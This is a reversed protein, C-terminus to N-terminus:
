HIQYTPTRYLASTNAGGLIEELVSNDLYTCVRRVTDLWAIKTDYKTKLKTRESQQFLWKDQAMILPKVTRYTHEILANAIDQDAKSIASVSGHEIKNRTEWLLLSLSWMQRILRTTWTVEDIINNRNQLLKKNLLGWQVSIRGLLVHEWGINSQRDFAEQFEHPFDDETPGYQPFEENVFSQIGIWLHTLIRGDTHRRMNKKLSRWGRRWAKKVHIAKCQMYHHQTEKATCSSCQGTTFQRNVPRLQHSVDRKAFMYKKRANVCQWGHILKLINVLPLPRTYKIAREHAEWCIDDFITVDWEYKEMLFQKLTENDVAEHVVKKLANHVLEDEVMVSAITGPLMTYIVPSIERRLVMNRLKTCMEDAEKNIRWHYSDISDDRNSHSEIWIYQLQVYEMSGVVNLIESEIDMEALMKINDDLYEGDSRQRIQIAAKSDIVMKVTVPVKPKGWMSIMGDIIYIIGLIGLLEERTSTISNYRPEEVNGGSVFATESGNIYLLFSHSGIGHKLGGDTATTITINGELWDQQIPKEEEMISYHGIVESRYPPVKQLYDDMTTILEPNSYNQEKESNIIQQTFYNFRQHSIKEWRGLPTKLERINAVIQLASQWIRISKVSPRHQIPWALTSSRVPEEVRWAKIDITTGDVNVIDALTIAQLYLRCSNLIVLTKTSFERIFLDMIPTDHVRCPEISFINMVRIKLSADQLLKQLEVIWNPETYKIPQTTELVPEKIGVLLQQNDLAIRLLKGVTDESKIHKLFLMIHEHTQIARLSEWGMGGYKKPGFCIKRPFQRCLGSAALCERIVPRQIQLCQNKTFGIIGASYRFKPVWLFPYIRIGCKRPFKAKKIHSAFTIGKGVWSAMETKWDGAITIRVGLVKEAENVELRRILVSKKGRGETQKLRLNTQLDKKTVLRARGGIWRWLTIMWFCKPLELKGGTACLNREWTQCNQKLNKMVPINSTSNNNTLVSLNCDDVYGTGGSRVQVSKDPNVYLPITCTKDLLNFLVILHMLWVAPGGGSGQGIGFLQKLKRTRIFKKSIGFKTGVHRKMKVLLLAMTIAINRELGVRRTFITQLSPLIRDYCGTADCEFLAGGQKTQKTIDITLKKHLLAGQATQGPVSGYASPHLAKNDKVSHVLRRGVLLMLAANMNSDLLEIIRLRHIWPKGPDKLLMLQISKCWRTPPFGFQFPLQALRRHVEILDDVNCAAKYHGVHLGYPSTTTSERKKIWFQKYEENTLIATVSNEKTRDDFKLEKIFENLWRKVKGHKWTNNLIKDATPTNGDQGLAEKLEGKAFPTKKAQHLHNSNRRLLHQHIMETTKVEIRNDINYRQTPDQISRDKCIWIEELKSKVYKGMGQKLIRFIEREEEHMIIETLAKEETLKNQVAYQQAQRQLFQIRYDEAQEFIQQKRKNAKAMREEIDMESQCNDDIELYERIEKLAFGKIDGTKFKALRLEWYRALHIAETVAPSWPVKGGKVKKCKKESGRCIRQVDRDISEYIDVDEKTARGQKTLKVVLEELRSFVNHYQMSEMTKHLYKEMAQADNTKLRRTQVIENDVRTDQFLKTKDIELMFGRHDGLLEKDYPVMTFSSIADLLDLTVLAFDITRGSRPYTPPLSDFMEDSVNLLGLQTAFKRIKSTPTWEENADILILVEHGDAVYASVSNTLDKYFEKIPNPHTMGQQRLMSYQQLYATSTGCHKLSMDNCRYCNYITLNRDNKGSLTTTVWRGMNTWDQSKEKIRGSWKGDIITGVGGPKYLSSCTTTSSTTNWTSDKDFLRLTNQFLHRAAQKEWAVCTESLCIVNANWEYLQHLMQEAKTDLVIDGIYKKEVKRRYAKMKSLALKNVELGNCNNYYVRLVKANVNQNFGDGVFKSKEDNKNIDLITRNRLVVKNAVRSDNIRHTEESVINRFTRMEYQKKNITFREDPIKNTTEEQVETAQHSEKVQTPVIDTVSAGSRFNNYNPKLNNNENEPQVGSNTIKRRKTIPPKIVQKDVELLSGSEQTSM